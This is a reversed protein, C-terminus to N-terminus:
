LWLTNKLLQSNLDNVFMYPAATPQQSCATDPSTNLTNTDKRNRLSDLFLIDAAIVLHGVELYLLNVLLPHASSVRGVNKIQFYLLLLFMQTGCRNQFTNLGSPVCQIRWQGNQDTYLVFKIPTEVNLEKELAFLHEKWPCGGQSFLLVEGSPDVQFHLSDFPM